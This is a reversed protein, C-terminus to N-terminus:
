IMIFKYIYINLKVGTYISSLKLTRSSSQCVVDYVTRRFTVPLSKSGVVVFPMCISNILSATIYRSHNM